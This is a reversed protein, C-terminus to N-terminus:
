KSGSPATVSLPAVYAPRSIATRKEKDKDRVIAVKVKRYPNSKLNPAPTYGIVYQTRLSRVIEEAIGQLDRRSKPYLARGGTEEALQDLMDIARRQPNKVKRFPANGEDVQSVLGVVFIQADTGRLLEFLQEQKYYSERDEGDTILILARRRPQSMNELLRKNLLQTGMYVADILATQGSEIFLEDISRNLAAKDSTFDRLVKIKKSNAFSMLFVEDEPRNANVMRKGAEIVEEFQSRLSGSNDILLGYSLPREDKSLTSISQEVEDEFVRFEEKTVDGSASESKDLVIVNLKASPQPPAEQPQSVTQALTSLACAALVIFLMARMSLSIKSLQKM